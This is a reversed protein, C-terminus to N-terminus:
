GALVETEKGRGEALAREYVYGASV